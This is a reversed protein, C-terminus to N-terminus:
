GGPDAVLRTPFLKVAVRKGLMVQEAEYVSTGGGGALERLLQYKGDLPGRAAPPGGRAAGPSPSHPLPDVRM